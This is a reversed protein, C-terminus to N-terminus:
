IIFFDKETMALNKSLKAFATQAKSGSGDADYYLMGKKADYIIRDDRELAKSGIHFAEEDLWGRGGVKKFIANELRITDPGVDFSKLTDVEGKGLRTNFVFTDRGFNDEIVDAGLGGYIVDDGSGASITDRGAGGIVTDNGTGSALSDDGSGGDLRDKGSGGNLTDSGADGYLHDNGSAGYLRDRGDGGYLSDNGGLGQLLSGTDAAWIKNASGNGYGSAASGQLVLNEVYASLTYSVSSYVVDTGSTNAEIVQDSTMDVIYMDSGSGGSMVDQGTGGDLLDNGDGGSVTDNGEDGYLSDNGSLSGVHDDGAGGHLTDDDAGLVIYQSASDGYVVQSGAGGTVRVSGIVAAFSVDQLEIHSGSPLGRTDIVLATMPDGAAAPTGSIVLPQSPVKMSGPALMPVIAQVILPTDGSLGQLFGSGGGTLQNQDTSGAATHARIERILDAFSSGAAKPAPSGTVQLGYGVPLQATLLWAGTSSKILPIDALTPNGQEELRGPEVVPITIVQSITGDSNTITGIQLYLGDVTRAVPATPLSSVQEAGGQQDTYSAVVTIAKGIMDQTLVLSTGTAGDIAVEDAQWQYSIPGLGDADALTHSVSLTEGESATGTITVSGTPADNVNGTIPTAASTVRELTGHQDTYAVTVTIAKGVQAQTLTFSAGTAGQIVEGGAKWQYTIAGLGDEDALTHGATLTQGELPTGSVTVAGTPADNVNAVPLTAGSAVREATGQQDTYHAVVTITKGVLSQTLALSSGTAGAIDTGDAQWQYTVTGMGDADALTHSAALTEGEAATGSISVAGTPADNTKITIWKSGASSINGSADTASATISGGNQTLAMYDADTLEYSWTTGSVLATRNPGGVNLTITSGEETSGSLTVGAKKEASTIVDDTAVVNFTPAVPAKTDITYNGSTGGGGINGALDSYGGAKVTVVNAVDEINTTPTFTASWTKGYDSTALGSLSGGEVILDALDFQSVKESFSITATAREGVRLATDSLTVSVVTPALTDIFFASYWNGGSKTTTYTVEGDPSSGGFSSLNSSFSEGEGVNYTIDTAGAKRFTVRYGGDDFDSDVDVFRVSSLSPIESANIYKDAATFPRDYDSM